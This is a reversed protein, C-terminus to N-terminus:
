EFDCEMIIKLNEEIKPFLWKKVETVRKEDPTRAGNIKIMNMLMKDTNSDGVEDEEEEEIKQQQQKQWSLFVRLFLQAIHIVMTQMQSNDMIRWQPEVLPEKTGSNRSFVYFTNPKQIFCRIPRDKPMSASREIYTGIASKIGDTLDRDFVCKMHSEDVSVHTWWEEFTSEPKQGPQNLWEIIVKKQRTNVVNKIRALEKETKELRISLDRVYRYLEKMNPIKMGNEDMEEQPPQRRLQHFYVCCNIHKDYDRKVKWNHKCYSCFINSSM